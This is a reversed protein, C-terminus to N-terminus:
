PYRKERLGPLRHHRLTETERTLIVIFQLKIPVPQAPCLASAAAFVFSHVNPRAISFLKGLLSSHDPGTKGPWNKFSNKRFLMYSYSPSKAGQLICTLTQLGEPKLLFFNGQNINCIM